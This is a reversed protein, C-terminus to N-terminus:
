DQQGTQEFLFSIESEVDAIRASLDYYAYSEAETNALTALENIQNQAKRLLYLLEEIDEMPKEPSL